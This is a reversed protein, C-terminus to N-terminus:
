NLCLDTGVPGGIGSLEDLQREAHGLPGDPPLQGGNRRHQGVAGLVIGIEPHAARAARHRNLKGAVDLMAAQELRSEAQGQALDHVLDPGLLVYRRRVDAGIRGHHRPDKVGVRHVLTVRHETHHRALRESNAAGKPTLLRGTVAREEAELLGEGSEVAGDRARALEGRPRAERAEVVAVAM